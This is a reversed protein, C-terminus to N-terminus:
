RITDVDADNTGLIKPRGLWGFVLAYAVYVVTPQEWVVVGPWILMVKLYDRVMSCCGQVCATAIIVETM